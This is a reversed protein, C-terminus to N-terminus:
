KCKRLWSIKKVGKTRAMKRLFDLRCFDARM